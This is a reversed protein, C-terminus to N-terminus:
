SAATGARGPMWPVRPRSRGRRCRSGAVFRRGTEPHLDLRPVHVDEADGGVGVARPGSLLGAVEEEIEALARVRELEEDSVPGALEGGGEVRDESVSAHFDELDRGATRARVGAGLPEHEGGVGLEGVAHQDEASAVELVDQVFVGAVVVLLARVAAAVQSRWGVVGERV